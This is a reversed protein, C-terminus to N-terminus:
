FRSWNSSGMVEPALLLDAVNMHHWPDDASKVSSPKTAVRSNWL